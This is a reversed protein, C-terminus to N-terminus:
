GPLPGGFIWGRLFAAVPYLVVSAVPVAVTLIVRQRTEPEYLYGCVIWVPLALLIAAAILGKAGDVSGMAAVMAPVITTLIALAFSRWADNELSDRGVIWIILQVSAWLMVLHFITTPDRSAVIYSLLEIREASIIM